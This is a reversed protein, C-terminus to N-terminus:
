DKRAIWQTHERSFPNETDGVFQSFENETTIQAFGGDALGIEHATLGYAAALERYRKAQMWLLVSAAAVIFVETPWVKSQPWAIRLLTFLVAAAQLAILTSFWRRGYRKSTSSKQAYWTRQEQIRHQRYYAMREQLPQGRIGVLHETLQSRDASHGALDAGLDKHEQLIQKLTHLFVTRAETLDANEFPEAKMMFRWTSTKISEAVARARYWTSEYQKIALLISVALGGLFLIAAAVAAGKSEIGYAALGAGAIALYAYLRLANLFTTQASKSAADAALYLAPYDEERMLM